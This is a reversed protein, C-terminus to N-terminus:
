LHHGARRGQGADQAHAAKCAPADVYGGHFEDVVSADDLGDPDAVLLPSDSALVRADKGVAQVLARVADHTAKRGHSRFENTAFATKDGDSKILLCDIVRAGAKKLAGHIKRHHVGGNHTVVLTNEDAPEALYGVLDDELQDDLAQDLAHVVVGKGGGM